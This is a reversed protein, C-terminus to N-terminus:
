KNVVTWDKDGLDKAQAQHFGEIVDELIPVDIGASMKQAYELDKTIWNVSFTLAPDQEQYAKWAIDTLIGGPRDVLAPGVINPDLGSNVAMRMAEGFAALHSAQLSNLVLKYRMGSGAEGFYFIKSSIATLDPKLDELKQKDGGVLLTLNGSEAAVRGGTLPMDFFSLGQDACMASLKSVWDISLTASTIVIKDKSAGAIIGDSGQWVSSSSEDNATVEFIIDSQDAVERPSALLNAGKQTLAEAKDASRNWVNVKYGAKLYNMAMGSGMIGTGVIGIKKM